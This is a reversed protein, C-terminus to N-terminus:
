SAPCAHGDRAWTVYMARFGARSQCSHHHRTMIAGIAFPAAIMLVIGTLVSALFVGFAMETWRKRRAAVIRSLPAIAALALFGIGFLPLAFMASGTRIVPVDRRMAGVWDYLDSVGFGTAGAGIVLMVIPPLWRQWVPISSGGSVPAVLPQRRHRAGRRHPSPNREKM